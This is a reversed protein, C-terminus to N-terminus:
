DTIDVTYNNLSDIVRPDVLGIYQEALKKAMNEKQTKYWNFASQSTEFSMWHRVGGDSLQAIFKKGRRIVGIPMDGSNNSIM